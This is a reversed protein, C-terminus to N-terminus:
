NSAAGGRDLIAPKAFRLLVKTGRGDSRVEVQEALRGMLLRGRGRPSTSCPPVPAGLPMAAGMRGTDAVRVTAWEPTVTLGIEVEGGIPSGHEIANAVAESVALLLLAHLSEAWGERRLARALAARIVGLSALDAAVRFVLDADACASAEEPAHAVARGSSGVARPVARGSPPSELQAQRLWQRILGPRDIAMRAHQACLDATLKETGTVRLSSRRACPGARRHDTAAVRGECRGAGEDTRVVLAAAWAPAVAVPAEPPVRPLPSGAGALPVPAGRSQAGPPFANGLARHTALGADLEPHLPKRM